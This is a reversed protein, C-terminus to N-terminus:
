AVLRRPPVTLLCEKAKEETMYHDVLPSTCFDWNSTTPNWIWTFQGACVYIWHDPDELREIHARDEGTCQYMSVEFGHPERVLAEETIGRVVEVMEPVTQLCHKAHEETLASDAGGSNIGWIMLLRNWARCQGEYFCYYTWSDKDNRRIYPRRPFDGKRRYAVVEIGEPVTEVSAQPRLLNTEELTPICRICDRAEAETMRHDKRVGQFYPEWIKSESNWVWTSNEYWCTYTWNHSHSDREIRTSGQGPRRYKTAEIVIPSLLLPVSQCLDRKTPVKQLCEKAKAETLYHGLGASTDWQRTVKNWFHIRKGFDKCVYYWFGNAELTIITDWDDQRCYEIAEIIDHKM